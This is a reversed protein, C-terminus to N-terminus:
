AANQNEQSPQPDAPQLDATKEKWQRRETLVDEPNRGRRRIIEQASAYGSDDLKEWAEAEKKPDIWPMAQMQYLGDHITAPDVDGPIVLQGSLLAMDICRSDIPRKFQDVFEAGLVEYASWQEVLEQRQSSYTGDYNKSFSSYSLGIGSAGRRMQLELFGEANSNPRSTDITGVDEGTRLDDFILGPRIMLERKEVAEGKEDTASYEDPVGKKIYAAMSAAVKAAIRESEEYDKIDMLRNYSSALITQGRTQHLRKVVRVHTMRSAPVTKTDLYLGTGWYSNGPHEKYVHYAKRQGWGNLEVGQVIRKSPDNYDYPLYDPELLEISYPVLTGHNLTLVTGQLHQVLMEGDRIWTRFSLREAQAMTMTHTVEPRKYFDQMLARIQKAFEEHITGDKRKPQPEFAIGNKGIVTNTLYSLAGDIIDLNSEMDRAQARLHKGAGQLIADQSRHDRPKIRQKDGEVAEFKALVQRMHARRMGAVPNFFAVVRDFLNM